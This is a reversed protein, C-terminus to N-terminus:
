YQGDKALVGATGQYSQGDGPLVPRGKTLSISFYSQGDGPLVSWGKTLSINVTRQYFLPQGRTLNVTGRYSQGDRPLVLVSTLNVTGRYSQGDRPPLVLISRGKTLHHRDGLLVSRGKTLSVMRQYPQLQGKAFLHGDGPLVSWGPYVFISWGSLTLNVCM